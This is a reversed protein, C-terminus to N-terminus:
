YQKREKQLAAAKIVKIPRTIDRFSEIPPRTFTQIVVPVTIPTGYKKKNKKNKRNKPKKPNNETLGFDIGNRTKFSVRFKCLSKYM